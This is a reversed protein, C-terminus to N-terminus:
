HALVVGLPQTQRKHSVSQEDSPRRLAKETSRSDCRVVYCDVISVTPRTNRRTLVAVCIAPRGSHAAPPQEDLADEPRHREGRRVGEGIEVQLEVFRHVQEELPEHKGVKPERRSDRRVVHAVQGHPLRRVIIEVRRRGALHLPYRAVLAGDAEVLVPRRHVHAAQRAAVVEVLVADHRPELTVIVM